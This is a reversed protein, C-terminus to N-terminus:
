VEVELLRGRARLQGNTAECLERLDRSWGSEFITVYADVLPNRTPSYNQIRLRYENGARTEFDFTEIQVLTKELRDSVGLQEPMEDPNLQVLAVLAAPKVTQWEGWQEYVAQEANESGTEEALRRLVLRTSRKHRQIRLELKQLQAALVLDDLNVEQAGLAELAEDRREVLFAREVAVEKIRAEAAMYKELNTQYSTMATAKVRADEYDIKSV